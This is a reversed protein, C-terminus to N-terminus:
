IGKYFVHFILDEEIKATGLFEYTNADAPPIQHGTGAIRFNVTILNTNPTLPVLAYAVIKRNQLEVSLIKSGIPMEVTPYDIFPLNYKHVAYM